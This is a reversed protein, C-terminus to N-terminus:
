AELYLWSYPTHKLLFVCKEGSQERCLRSTAARGVVGLIRPYRCFCWRFNCKNHYIIHNFQVPARWRAWLGCNDVRESFIARGTLVMFCDQPFLGGWTPLDVQPSIVPASREQFRRFSPAAELVQQSPAGSEEWGEADFRSM